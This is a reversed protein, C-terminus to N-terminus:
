MCMARTSPRQCITLTSQSSFGRPYRELLRSREPRNEYRTHPPHRDPCSLTGDAELLSHIRRQFIAFDVQTSEAAPRPPRELCRRTRLRPVRCTTRSSSLRNTIRREWFRTMRLGPWAGSSAHAAPRLASSDAKPRRSPPRPLGASVGRCGWPGVFARKPLTVRTPRISQGAIDHGRTDHPSGRRVVLPGVTSGEARRGAAHASSTPRGPRPIVPGRSPSSLLPPRPPIM